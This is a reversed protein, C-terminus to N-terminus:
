KDKPLHSILTEPTRLHSQACLTLSRPEEGTPLEVHHQNSVRQDQIKIFIKGSVHPIAGCKVKGECWCSLRQPVAVYRPLNSLPKDSPEKIMLTVEPAPDSPLRRPALGM